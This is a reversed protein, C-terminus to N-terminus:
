SGTREDGAALVIAADAHRAPGAALRQRAKEVYATRRKASGLRWLREAMRTVQRHDVNIEGHETTMLIPM